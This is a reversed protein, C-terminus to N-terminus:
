FLCFKPLPKEKSFAFTSFLILIFMIVIESLISCGSGSSVSEFEFCQYPATKHVTHMTFKRLVAFLFNLSSAPESDLDKRVRFKKDPGSSVWTKSLLNYNLRLDYFRTM